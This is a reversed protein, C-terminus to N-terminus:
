WLGIVSETIVSVPFIRTLAVFYRGQFVFFGPKDDRDRISFQGRAKTPVGGQYSKTNTVESLNVM